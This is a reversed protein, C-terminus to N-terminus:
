SDNLLVLIWKRSTEYKSEFIHHSCDRRSTYLYCRKKNEKERHQYISSRYEHNSKKKLNNHANAMKRKGLANKIQCGSSFVQGLSNQIDHIHILVLSVNGCHLGTLEAEGFGFLFQLSICTPSHAQPEYTLRCFSEM